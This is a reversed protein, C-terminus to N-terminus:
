VDKLRSKVNEARFFRMSTYPIRKVDPAVQTVVPSYRVGCNLKAVAHGFEPDCYYYAM